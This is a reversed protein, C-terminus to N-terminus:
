RGGARLDVCALTRPGKIFAFGDAIAPYSRTTRGVVQVRGKVKFEKPSLQALQLFNRGNLPIQVVEQNSIVDSIEATTTQLLPASATVVVDTTVGEVQLSFDVNQTRGVELSVQVTRSAFGTSAARVEWQGIRLEPLLFRGDAGTVREVVTGSAPHTATVTAGALLAALHDRVIGSIVATNTQAAAPRALALILL